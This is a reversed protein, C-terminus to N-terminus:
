SQTWKSYYWWDEGGDWIPLLVCLTTSVCCPLVNDDTGGMFATATCLRWGATNFHLFSLFATMDLNLQLSFAACLIHGSFTQSINWSWGVNWLWYTCNSKVLAAKAFRNLSSDVSRSCQHISVNLAGATYCPLGPLTCCVACGQPVEECLLWMYLANPVFSSSTAWRNSMLLSFNLCHSPGLFFFFVGCIFGVVIWSYTLLESAKSEWLWWTKVVNCQLILASWNQTWWITGCQFFFFCLNQKIVSFM